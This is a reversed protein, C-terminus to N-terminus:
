YTSLACLGRLAAPVHARARARARARAAQLGVFGAVVSHCGVHRCVGQDKVFPSSCKWCERKMANTMAEEIKRRAKTASDNEVKDCPLGEHIKWDEQCKICTKAMCKNCKFFKLDADEIVMAFGCDPKPCKHLNSDKSFAVRLSDSQQREILQDYARQSVQTYWAARCGPTSVMALRPMARVVASTPLLLPM